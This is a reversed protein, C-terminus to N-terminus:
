HKYSRDGQSVKGWKEFRSNLKVKRKSVNNCNGTMGKGKRKIEMTIKHMRRERMSLVRHEFDSKSIAGMKLCTLDGRAGPHRLTKWHLPWKM